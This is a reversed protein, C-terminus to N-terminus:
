EKELEKIEEAIEKEHRYDRYFLMAIIGLLFVVFIDVRNKYGKIPAECIDGSNLKYGFLCGNKNRANYSTLGMMDWDNTNVNCGGVENGDDNTYQQKIECNSTEGKIGDPGKSGRSSTPARPGREGIRGRHGKEGKKGLAGIEGIFKKPPLAKETLLKLMLYNVGIGFILMILLSIMNLM